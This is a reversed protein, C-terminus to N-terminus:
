NSKHIRIRATFGEGPKSEVDMKGGLHAIRNAINALGMGEHWKKTKSMDFGQGDDNYSIELGENGHQIDLEVHKAQAHKLTNNMLETLCRYLIIETNDAMRDIKTHRFDITLSTAKRIHSFFDELTPILGRSRLEMPSLNRAIDSLSQMGRSFIDELREKIEARSKEDPADTYAQVYLRVTSFVPGLGDHLDRAMREREKEETQIQVDMHRRRLKENEAMESKLESISQKLRKSITSVIYYFILSISIYHLSRTLVCFLDCNNFRNELPLVDNYFIILVATLLTLAVSVLLIAHAQHSPLVLISFVIVLLFWLGAIDILRLSLCYVAVLFFLLIFFWQKTEYHIRGRMLYLALTLATLIIPTYRVYFLQSKALALYIVVNLPISLLLIILTSMNIVRDVMM